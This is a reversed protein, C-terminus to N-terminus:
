RQDDASENGRMDYDSESGIFTWEELWNERDFAGICQASTDFFGDSPPVAGVGIESAPSGPVPRPDPNAEYRVNVLRPDLDLYRIASAARGHLQGGPLRGNNAYLISNGVSSTGNALLAASTDRFDIAAAAFGQVIANRAQLAAGKHVLIGGAHAGSSLNSSGNGVLTVNYLEPYSRPLADFNLEDNEGEMASDGGARGQQLFLFQGRGRWGLSWGLCDDTAGTSACYTCDATGGAFHIGDGASAHAQVHDIVTGSGVGGLRVGGSQPASGAGAGAFEVRVYQLVGSSDLPDDGGYLPRTEPEIGQFRATGRTTPARGLIVLGGWCGEHRQGVQEDCTMVIPADPRGQAHIRGGREVIIAASAGRALILTGPEITLTAGPNVFVQHRVAYIRDNTWVTDSSIETDLGDAGLVLPLKASVAFKAHARKVVETTDPSRLEAVFQWLGAGLGRGAWVRTPPLEPIRGSDFIRPGKGNTDVLKDRLISPGRNRALYLRQGTEINELFVFESFPRPDGMPDIAMYVRIIERFALYGPRETWIALRAPTPLMRYSGDMSRQATDSDPAAAAFSWAWFAALLAFPMRQCTM